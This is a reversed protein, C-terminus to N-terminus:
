ELGRAMAYPQEGPGTLLQSLNVVRKIATERAAAAFIATRTSRVKRSPIRSLGTSCTHTAWVRDRKPILPMTKIEAVELFMLQHGRIAQNFM